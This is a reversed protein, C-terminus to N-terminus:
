KPKAGGEPLGQDPRGHDPSGPIPQQSAHGSGPLSQDPAGGSGGPLENDSHVNPPLGQDPTDVEIEGGVAQGRAIVEVEITAVVNTVGDGLDADATATVATLGPSTGATITAGNDHDMDPVVTAYSENASAWVIPGDVQVPFGNANRFVVNVHASQTAILKM